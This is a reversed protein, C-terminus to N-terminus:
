IDRRGFLMQLELGASISQGFGSCMQLWMPSLASVNCSSVPLNMQQSMPIYARALDSSVGGPLKM